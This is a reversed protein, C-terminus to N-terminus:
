GRERPRRLFLSKARVRRGLSKMRADDHVDLARAYAVSHYGTQCDLEIIDVFELSALGAHRRAQDISDTFSTLNTLRDRGLSYGDIRWGVGALRALPQREAHKDLWRESVLVFAAAGDTLPAQHGERLPVAVYRSEAIEAPTPVSGVAARTNGAARGYARMVADTVEREAIQFRGAVAQAFLGDAIAANLGIPRLYFPECRMRMVDEFPAISSKNWSVVLGVDHLGSNSGCPASSSPM